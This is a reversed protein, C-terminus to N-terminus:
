GVLFGRLVHLTTASGNHRLRADSRELKRRFMISFYSAICLSNLSLISCILAFHAALGAVVEALLFCERVMPVPASLDWSTRM